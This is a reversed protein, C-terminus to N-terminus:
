GCLACTRHSRKRPCYPPLTLIGAVVMPFGHLLAKRMM